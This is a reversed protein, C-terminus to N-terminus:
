IPVVFRQDGVLIQRSEVGHSQRGTVPVASPRGFEDIVPAGIQTCVQAHHQVTCVLHMEGVAVLGVVVQHEGSRLDTASPRLDLHGTQPIDSCVGAQCEVRVVLLHEGVVVAVVLVQDDGRRCCIRISIADRVPSVAASPCRWCRGDISGAAMPFLLRQGSCTVIGGVDVHDHSRITQSSQDVVLPQFLTLHTAVVVRGVDGRVAIYAVHDLGSGAYPADLLRDIGPAIHPAVHADGDCGVAALM